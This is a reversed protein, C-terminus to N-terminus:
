VDSIYQIRYIVGNAEETFLISGDPMVLIGVPRGWTSPISADILFGTLFDEYYGKPRAEEDFPIFVLKYGTGESRNWSGRFAVFAGNHYKKPFTKGDYFQLGLPASHSEILIDPTITKSVL